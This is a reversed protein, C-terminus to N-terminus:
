QLKLSATEGACKVGLNLIGIDLAKAEPIEAVLVVDTGAGQALTGQYTSLDNELMTVQMNTKEIEDSSVSFRVKKSLLDVMCDENSINQMHFKLVLLKNGPTSRMAFFAGKEDAENEEPYSNTVASGTYQLDLGSLGLFDALVVPAEESQNAGDGASPDSDSVGDTPEPEANAYAQAIQDIREQKARAAAEEAEAIAIEEETLLRSHYGTDYSLLVAAAYESIQESEEATLDMIM